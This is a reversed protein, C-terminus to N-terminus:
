LVPVSGPPSLEFTTDLDFEQAFYGASLSLEPGVRVSGHRPLELPAAEAPRSTAAVDNLELDCAAAAMGVGLVCFVGLGMLAAAFVSVAILASALNKM